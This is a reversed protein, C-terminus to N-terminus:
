GPMGGDAAAAMAPFAPPNSELARVGALFCPDPVMWSDLQAYNLEKGISERRM